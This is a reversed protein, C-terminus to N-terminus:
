WYRKICALVGHAHDSVAAYLDEAEHQLHIEYRSNETWGEIITWNADLITDKSREDDITANLGAVRILDTSKHSWASKAITPHPFFDFQSTQRCVCSKLACEIAYGCVYYAGSYLGVDLLAKAHQLHLDSLQQFDDRNM